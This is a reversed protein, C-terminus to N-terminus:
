AKEIEIIIEAEEAVVDASMLRGNQVVNKAIKGIM